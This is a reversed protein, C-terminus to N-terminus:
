RALVLVDTRHRDGSVTAPRWVVRGGCQLAACRLTVIRDIIVAGISLAQGDSQALVLGCRPCRITIAPQQIM